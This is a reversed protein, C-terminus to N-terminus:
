KCGCHKNANLCPQYDVPIPVMDGIMPLIEDFDLDGKRKNNFYYIKIGCQSTNRDVVAEMLYTDPGCDFVCDCRELCENCTFFNDNVSKFDNSDKNKM